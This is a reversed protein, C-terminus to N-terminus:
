MTDSYFIHCMNREPVTRFYFPKWMLGDNILACVFMTSVLQAKLLIKKPTQVLSPFSRDYIITITTDLKGRKRRNKSLLKLVTGSLFIHESTLVLVEYPSTEFFTNSRYVFCNLVFCLM